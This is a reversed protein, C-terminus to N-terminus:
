ATSLLKYIRNYYPCMGAVWDWVYKMWPDDTVVERNTAADFLYREKARFIMTHDVVCQAESPLGSVKVLTSMLSEHIERCSKLGTTSLPLEKLETRLIDSDSMGALGGDTANASGSESRVFARLSRLKSSINNAHYFSEPLPTKIADTQEAIVADAPDTKLANEITVEVDAREPGFIPIDSLAQDVLLPGMMESAQAPEFRMVSHYPTGEARM